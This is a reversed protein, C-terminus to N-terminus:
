HWMKLVKNEVVFIKSLVRVSSKLPPFWSEYVQNPNSSGQKRNYNEEEDAGQLALLKAPYDLESPTPKFKTVERQVMTTACFILREQVDELIMGMVKAAPALVIFSAPPISNKEERLIIIIQCLTDLDLLSVIGRRITSHFHGCLTDMFSQFWTDGIVNTSNSGGEPISSLTQSSSSSLSFSSLSLSVYSNLELALTPAYAKHFPALRLSTSQSCDVQRQQTDMQLLESTDDEEEEEMDKTENKKMKM